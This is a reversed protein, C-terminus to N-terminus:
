IVFMSMWAPCRTIITHGDRGRYWPLLASLRTGVEVVVVMVVNRREIERDRETIQLCVCVRMRKRKWSARVCMLVCVRVIINVLSVSLLGVSQNRKNKTIENKLAVCAMTSFLLAHIVMMFLNTHYIGIPEPM